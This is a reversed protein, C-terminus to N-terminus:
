SRLREAAVVPVWVQRLQRAFLRARELRLLRLQALPQAQRQHWAVRVVVFVHDHLYPCPRAAVLRCEERLIEEAHIRAVGLAVTPLHLHQARVLNADAPVLFDDELDAAVSRVALQLELTPYVAHLPYRRGLRLPSDM